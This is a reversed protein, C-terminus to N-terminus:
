KIAKNLNKVYNFNMGSGSGIVELSVTTEARAIAAL